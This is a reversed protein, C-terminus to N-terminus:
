ERMLFLSPKLWENTLHQASAKPSLVWFSPTYENNIPLTISSLFVVATVVPFHASQMQRFALAAPSGIPSMPPVSTKYLVCRLSMKGPTMEARAWTICHLSACSLQSAAKRKTPSTKCSRLNIGALLPIFVDREAVPVM